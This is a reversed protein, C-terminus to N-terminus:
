PHELVLRAERAERAEGAVDLLELPGLLRPRRERQVDEGVPDRRGDARQGHRETAQIREDERRPDPLVGRANSRGDTGAEAEEADLEVVRRVLPGLRVRRDRRLARRRPYKDEAGALVEDCGP